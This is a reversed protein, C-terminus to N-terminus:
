QEEYLNHMKSYRAVSKPVLHEWRERRQIMGRIQQSHMGRLEPMWLFGYEREIEGAYTWDKVQDRLDEGVVFKYEHNEGEGYEGSRSLVRLLDITFIPAPQQKLMKREIDLVRVDCSDPFSAVGVDLEQVGLQAMNLRHEYNLRGTKLAHAASTIILVRSIDKREALIRTVDLHHNGFPSFSGGFVATIGM